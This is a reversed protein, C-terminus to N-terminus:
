EDKKAEKAAEKAKSDAGPQEGVKKETDNKGLEFEPAKIEKELLKVLRAIDDAEGIADVPPGAQAAQGGGVPALPRVNGPHGPPPTSSQSSAEGGSHSGIQGKEVSLGTLSLGFVLVVLYRMSYVMVSRITTEAGAEIISSRM